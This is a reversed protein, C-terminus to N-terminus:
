SATVRADNHPRLNAAGVAIVVFALPLVELVYRGEPFYLFALFATRVLVAAAVVVGLLRTGPRRVTLVLGFALAITLATSLGSMVKDIRNFVVPWPRWAPNLFLDDHPGFWLFGTRELPLVVLTRWPHRRQRERAIQYFADSVGPPYGERAHRKFLEDVRTQEERSDFAAQPYHLASQPCGPTYYCFAYGRLEADSHAWTSMWIRYGSAEIPQSDKSVHTGFLHPAGFHIQNRIAWPAVAVILGALALAGLHLRERWSRAAVLLAAAVGAGLLLSDFRLLTSLGIVLGCAFYRLRPRAEVLLLALAATSLVMALSETLIASSYVVTVPWFAALALAGLGAWRGGYRRALVWVLPVMALLEVLLQALKIREWNHPGRTWWDKGGEDIVAALFLSYLPPRAWYLPAPPPGMAYRHNARLEGALRM